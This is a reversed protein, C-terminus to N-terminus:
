RSFEVGGSSAHAVVRELVVAAPALDDLTAGVRRSASVATRKLREESTDAREGHTRRGVLPHNLM